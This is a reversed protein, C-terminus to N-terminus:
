LIFNDLFDSPPTFSRLATHHSLTSNERRRYFLYTQEVPEIQIQNAICRLNFDYDEYAFPSHINVRENYPIARYNATETFTTASWFNHEMMAMIPIARSYSIKFSEIKNGFSIIYEPTCVIPHNRNDIQRKLAAEVWNESVFDDGDLVGVYETRTHDIGVNRAAAASGFQTAIIQDTKKGYQQIYTHVIKSTVDNANDLICILQVENGNQASYQRVRSIGMLSKHAYHEERHFTMIMTAPPLKGKNFSM